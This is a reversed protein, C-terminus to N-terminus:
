RRAEILRPRGLGALPALASVLAAAAAVGLLAAAAPSSLLLGRLTPAAAADSVLAAICACGTALGAAVWSLEWRASSRMATSTRVGCLVLGGIAALVLSLGAFGGSRPWWTVTAAYVVAFASFAVVSCVLVHLYVARALAFEPVPLMASARSFGGPADWRGGVTRMSLGLPRGSGVWAGGAFLICTAALLVGPSVSWRAVLLGGAPLLSVAVGRGFGVVVGRVFDKRLVHDSSRGPPRSTPGAALATRARVFAQSGATPAWWLIVGAGVMGVLVYSTPSTAGSIALGATTVAAPVAWRLWSKYSVPHDREISALLLHPLSIAALAPGAVVLPSLLGALAEADDALVFSSPGWIAAAVFATVALVALAEAVARARVSLPLVSTTSSRGRRGMCSGLAWRAVPVFLLSLGVSTAGLRGSFATEASPSFVQMGAMPLTNVFVLLAVLGGRTTCLLRVVVGAHHLVSM